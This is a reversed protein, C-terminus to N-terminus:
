SLYFVDTFDVERYFIYSILFFFNAFIIPLIVLRLVLISMNFQLCWLSWWFFPLCYLPWFFFLVSLSRCLVVRFVLSQTSLVTPSSLHEPLDEQEVLPVRRTVRIVCGNFVGGNVNYSYVSRKLLEHIHLRHRHVWLNFLREVWSFFWRIM